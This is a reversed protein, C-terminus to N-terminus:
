EPQSCELILKLPRLELSATLTPCLTKENHRPTIGTDVQLVTESSPKGEEKFHFLVLHYHSGLNDTIKEGMLRARDTM